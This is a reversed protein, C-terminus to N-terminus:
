QRRRNKRELVTVTFCHYDATETQEEAGTGYRYFLSLGSDIDTRGSWYRLPLVTVTWQRRRDKRELVKVTFCHYDM